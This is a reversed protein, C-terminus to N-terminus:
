TQATSLGVDGHSDGGRGREGGVVTGPWQVVYPVTYRMGFFDIYRGSLIQQRPLETIPINIYSGILSDGLLVLAASSSVGLRTYAYRLAGLQILVLLVVFLAVLISFYLPALPLYHMEHTMGESTAKSKRLQFRELHNLTNLIAYRM